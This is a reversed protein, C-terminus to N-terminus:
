MIDSLTPSNWLRLGLPHAVHFHSNQQTRKEHCYDTRINHALILLGRMISGRDWLLLGQFLLTSLDDFLEGLEVVEAAPRNSGGSAAAALGVAAAMLRVLRDVTGIEAQSEFNLAFGHRFRKGVRGGYALGFALDGLEALKLLETTLKDVDASLDAVQPGSLLPCQSRLFFFTRPPGDPFRM